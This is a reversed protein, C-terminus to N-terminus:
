QKNQRNSIPLSPFMFTFERVIFSEEEELGARPVAVLRFIFVAIALANGCPPWLIQFLFSYSPGWLAM